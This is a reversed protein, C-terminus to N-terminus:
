NAAILLLWTSLSCPFFTSLCTCQCHSTEITPLLCSALNVNFIGYLPLQLKSQCQFPASRPHPVATLFLSDSPDTQLHCIVSEALQDYSCHLRPVLVHYVIFLLTFLALFVILIPVSSPRGSLPSCPVSVAVLLRVLARNKYPSTRISLAAADLCLPQCRDSNSLSRSLAM